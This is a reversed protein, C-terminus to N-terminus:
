ENWFSTIDSNVGNYVEKWFADSNFGTPTKNGKGISGLNNTAIIGGSNLDIISVTVNGYDDTSNVVYPEVDAKAANEKLANVQATTLGTAVAIQAIESGSANTLAGSGLLLNLKDLNNKYEQNDINYQQAAINVRVQADAKKSDIQQQLTNIENGAKEDLKAIKGVRTAEAYWPNDNIKANEADKAQKKQNLEDELAKLAPDNIATNYIENLNVKSGSPTGGGSSLPSASSTIGLRQQTEPTTSNLLKTKASAVTEAGYKDPELTKLLDQAKGLDKSTSLSYGEKEARSIYDRLETASMASLEKTRLDKVSAMNIDRRQTLIM